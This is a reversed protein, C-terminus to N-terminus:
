FVGSTMSMGHSVDSFVFSCNCSLLGVVTGSDTGTPDGSLPSVAVKAEVEGPGRTVGSAM